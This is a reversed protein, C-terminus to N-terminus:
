ERSTEVLPFADRPIDDPICNILELNFWGRYGFITGFLANRIDVDIEFRNQHENFSERVYAVGSLIQPFRLTLFPLFLRQAGTKLVLDGDEVTFDLDVSLHQHTGAYVIPRDRLDSFILTEDFYRECDLFNFTRKWTLTERNFTDRYAFNEVTFPINSGTETFLIRRASGLQLFPVVFWPGRFIETM